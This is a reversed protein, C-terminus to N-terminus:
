PLQQQIDRSLRQTRLMEKATLQKASADRNAVAIGDGSTAALSYWMYAMAYSPNLQMAKELALKAEQEREM